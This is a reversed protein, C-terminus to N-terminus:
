ENEENEFEEDMDEIIEVENEDIGLNKVEKKSRKTFPCIMFEVQDRGSTILGTSIEVM